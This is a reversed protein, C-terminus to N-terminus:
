QSRRTAGHQRGPCTKGHLNRRHESSGPQLCILRRCRVAMAVTNVDPQSIQQLARNYYHMRCCALHPCVQVIDVLADMDFQGQPNLLVNRCHILADESYRQELIVRANLFDAFNLTDESDGHCCERVISRQLRESLDAEGLYEFLLERKIPDSGLADRFEKIQRDTFYGTALASLQRNLARRKRRSAVIGM